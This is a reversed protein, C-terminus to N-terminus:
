WKFPCNSDKWVHILKKRSEKLLTNELWREQKPHEALWIDVGRKISWCCRKAYESDWSSCVHAGAPIKNHMVPWPADTFTINQPLHVKLEVSLVHFGNWCNTFVFSVSFFLFSDAAKYILWINTMLVYSFHILFADM